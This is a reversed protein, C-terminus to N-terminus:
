EQGYKGKMVDSLFQDYLCTKLIAQFDLATSCVTLFVNTSSGSSEAQILIIYSMGPAKVGWPVVTKVYFQLRTFSCRPGM